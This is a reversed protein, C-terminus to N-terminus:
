ADPVHRELWDLVRRAVWDRDFDVTLVHGSHEAWELTKMPSGLAAFAEQADAAAVRPDQRSHIVLAPVRALPAAERAQRVVLSLEHLLRPTTVGRGLAKRRAEADLISFESRSRLYPVFLSIVRHLAAIRAARHSLKVYPALLVMAEVDVETALVTALAGGMSQGVIAVHPSRARLKDLEARADAMWHHAGSASFARLSAGHGHLRPARVVWGHQHLFTALYRVSQPTDGFGHLILVARHGAGLSISEAGELVGASGGAPGPVNGARSRNVRRAFWAAVAVALIVLGGSLVLRM